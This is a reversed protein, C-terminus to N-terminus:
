YEVYVNRCLFDTIFFVSIVPMIKALGNEDYMMVSFIILVVVISFGLFELILRPVPQVFTYKKDM